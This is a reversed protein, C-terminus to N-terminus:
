TQIAEKVMHKETNNVPSFLTYILLAEITVGQSFLWDKHWTLGKLDGGGQGKEAAAKRHKQLSNLLKSFLIDTHTHTDYTM